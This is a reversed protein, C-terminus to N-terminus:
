ESSPQDTSSILIMMVETSVAVLEGVVGGEHSGVIPVHRDAFRPNQGVADM